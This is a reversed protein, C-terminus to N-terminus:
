SSGKNIEDIIKQLESPMEFGVSFRDDSIKREFEDIDVSDFDVDIDVTVTADLGFLELSAEVKDEINNAMERLSDRLVEKRAFDMIKKWLKKAKSDM